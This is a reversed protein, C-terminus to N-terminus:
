KNRKSIKQLEEIDALDRKRNSARKAKILYEKSIVKIKLDDIETIVIHKQADEFEIGKCYTMIDIQIPSIGFTFVDFEDNNIFSEVDEMEGMFMGFDQHVLKMKRHNELTPNVFLDMYGTSRRYGYINVAMGGVLMYEVEYQNLLEIYEQFDQNFIDAM